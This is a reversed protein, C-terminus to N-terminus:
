FLTEDDTGNTAISSQSIIRRSSSADNGSSNPTGDERISSSGGADDSTDSIGSDCREANSNQEKNSESIQKKRYECLGDNRKNWISESTSELVLKRARLEALMRMFHVYKGEQMPLCALSETKIPEIGKLPFDEHKSALRLLAPFIEKYDSYGLFQPILRNDSLLIISARLILISAYSSIM